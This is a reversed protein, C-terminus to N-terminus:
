KLCNKPYIVKYKKVNRKARTGLYIWVEKNLTDNVQYAWWGLDEVEVIESYPHMDRMHNRFDYEDDYEGCGVLAIALLIFLTRKM